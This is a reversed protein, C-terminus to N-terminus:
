NKEFFNSKEMMQKIIPKSKILFIIYIILIEYTKLRNKGDIEVRKEGIDITKGKVNELKEQLYILISSETISSITVTARQNLGYTIIKENKIFEPIKMNIDSNIVVFKANACIKEILLMEEKFECLNGDIVIIEFKINKINSISKKCIHILNFDNNKNKKLVEKVNEFSKYDSVMGFFSMKLVRIINIIKYNGIKGNKYM